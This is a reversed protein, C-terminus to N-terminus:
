NAKEWTSIEALMMALVKVEHAKRINQALGSVRNAGFNLALGKLAHACHNILEADAAEFGAAMTLTLQRMEEAATAALRKWSGVSLAGRLATAVDDHQNQAAEIEPTSLKQCLAKAMAAMLENSNAPKPVASDFADRWKTHETSDALFASLALIPTTSCHSLDARISRAATVGDMIPMEIDLLIVDYNDHRACELAREGDEVADVEFGMRQLMATTVIRSTTQDEAYLVRRPTGDARRFAQSKTNARHGVM